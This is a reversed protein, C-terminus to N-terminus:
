VGVRALVVGDSQHAYRDHITRSSLDTDYHSAPEGDNTVWTWGKSGKVWTDNEPDEVHSYLPLAVLEAVTMNCAGVLVRPNVITAAVPQPRYQALFILAIDYDETILMADPADISGVAITIRKM